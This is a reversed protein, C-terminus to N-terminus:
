DDNGRTIKVIAEAIRKDQHQETYFRIMRGIQSLAMQEKASDSSILQAEKLYRGILWWHGSTFEGASELLNDPSYPDYLPDNVLKEELERVKDQADTRKQQASAARDHANDSNGIM